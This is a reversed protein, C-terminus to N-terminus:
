RGTWIRVDLARKAMQKMTQVPQRRLRVLRQLMREARFARHQEASMEHLREGGYRSELAARREPQSAPMSSGYNSFGPMREPCVLFPYDLKAYAPLDGAVLVAQKDGCGCAGCLYSGPFRRSESREPCPPLEGPVGNCSASRVQRAEASVRDRHGLRGLLRSAVAMSYSVVQQKFNLM